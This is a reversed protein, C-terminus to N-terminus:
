PAFFWFLSQVQQHLEIAEEVSNAGTLGDDMRGCSECSPSFGVLSGCVYTVRNVFVLWEAVFNIIHYAM